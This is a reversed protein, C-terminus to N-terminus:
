QVDAVDGSVEGSLAIDTTGVGDIKVVLREGVKNNAWVVGVGVAVLTAAMLVNVVLVVVHSRPRPPVRSTTM